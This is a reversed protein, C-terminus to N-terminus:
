SLDRDYSSEQMSEEGHEAEILRVVSGFQAWSLKGEVGDSVTSSPSFSLANEAGRGSLFPKFDSLSDIVIM